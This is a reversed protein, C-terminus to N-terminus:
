RDLNNIEQKIFMLNTYIAELDTIKASDFDESVFYFYKDNTAQKLIVFNWYKGIVFAGRIIKSQNLNLAM